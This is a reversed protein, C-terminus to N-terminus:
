GQTIVTVDHGELYQKEDTDVVTTTKLDDDGNDNTPESEREEPNEEQEPEAPIAAAAKEVDEARVITRKLSYERLFLVMILCAGATPTSVLWIKSISQAYAQIVAARATPDPITKLKGVSQLLAGPSTNLTVNAINRIKIRLISSYIAQGISIGVTGGLTRLFLFTATSTALDKLPMAAQLGILPSQFVTGVGLGTLLPFFVKRVASSHADLLIMLGVGTTLVAYGVWMVPRYLGTKSVIIGSVASMASTALSFPLMEVGSRTASAGLVQFYLPLYYAAVFFVVAHLFTSILILATTRTRFLRPPIIPSRKTYVENVAGAFLVVCGVVLLAITSASSWSTESQNFGVLLMVVGSVVLFLGIFDFEDLHQKLTRGQQPNLNLFFFLLAAAVGGTPLNIFFCWRWSVHETLVGGLLPGIVSAIGFTAGIIGSYKGRDQLSVIDSITINVM